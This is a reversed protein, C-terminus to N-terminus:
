PRGVCWIVDFDSFFKTSTHRVPPRVRSGITSRNPCRRPSSRFISDLRYFGARNDVVQLLKPFSLWNFLFPFFYFSSHPGIGLRITARGFV